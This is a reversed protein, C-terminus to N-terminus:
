ENRLIQSPNIRATKITQYGITVLTVSISALGAIALLSWGINIRYQYDLLWENMFYYSLPLGILLSFGILILLDKSILVMMSSISAGLVKRIGIEKSRNAAMFSTLGLMGMCAILIAIGAFTIFVRKLQLEFSYMQQFRDDLFQSDFPLGPNFESFTSEMFSLTEKMNNGSIKVMGYFIRSPNYLLVFPEIKREMSMFHFDEIVGQVPAEVEAITINQGIAEEPTWNFLEAATQNIIYSPKIGTTDYERFPVAKTNFDDGALLNMGVVEMFDKDTYLCYIAEEDGLNNLKIPHATGVHVPTNHSFGVSEINPNTLLTSKFTELQDRMAWSDVIFRVVHERDFGINKNQIFSLQGNVVLTAVILFASISFQFVVLVKRLQNGDNSSSFKGKLVAVPKFNSLMLAPYSGALLTIIISLAILQIVLKSNTLEAVTFTQDSLINFQPLLFVALGFSLILAIIVFIFSESLFQYILQKRKAGIVKRVGVEKARHMTRATALNVYNVCAILLILAAVSMFIYVYRINGPNGLEYQLRMESQLYIDGYNQLMLPFPEEGIVSKLESNILNGAKAEFQKLDVSPALQLFTYYGDNTWQEDLTWPVDSLQAAYDMQILSNKPFPALVGTITYTRGFITLTEGIVDSKGYRAIAEKESIVLSAPNDFLHEKDGYLLPFTFMKFFAPELYHVNAMYTNQKVKFTRSGLVILRASEVIEDEFSRDLLAGIVSPVFAKEGDTIRYIQDKNEHFNDFSLQHQVYMSILIFSTLGVMLGAINIFSYAKHRAANRFAIKFYNKFMVINNTSNQSNPLTRLRYGRIFKFVNLWYLRKAKNLGYKEVHFEFREYLDGLIEEQFENKCYFSLFREAFKPPGAKM